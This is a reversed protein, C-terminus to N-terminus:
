VLGYPDKRLEHWGDPGEEWAFGNHLDPIPVPGVDTWGNEGQVFRWVGYYSIPKWRVPEFKPIFITPSVSAAGALAALSRFFNRRNM